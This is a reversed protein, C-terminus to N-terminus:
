ACTSLKLFVMPRYDNLRGHEASKTGIAVANVFAEADKIVHDAPMVLLLPADAGEESNKIALLAALAVYAVAGLTGWRRVRGSEWPRRRPDAWVLWRAPTM